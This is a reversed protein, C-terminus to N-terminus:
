RVDHVEQLLTQLRECARKVRMKLASVGAGTVLAMEDYSLDEVHKLLFAERHDPPLAALARELEWRWEARRGDHDVAAAALLADDVLVRRERAGRRRVLTRCRNVLVEFLWTRFSEREEYRALARHARVFTEQVADEADAPDGLMRAAFRLCAPAHRDMLGAFAAADGAQARRVLAADAPAGAPAESAGGPAGVRGPRPVDPRICPPASAASM